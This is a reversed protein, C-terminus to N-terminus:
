PRPGPLLRRHGARDAQPGLGRRSRAPHRAKAVYGEYTTVSLTDRRLDLWQEVLDKVTADTGHHDSRGQRVEVLLGALAAEAERKSGRVSRSVSRSRGTVPDRGASVRLEWRGEAKSRISGSGYRSQQAM